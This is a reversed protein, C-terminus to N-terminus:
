TALMEAIFLTTFESVGSVLEIVLAQQNALLLQITPSVGATQGAVRAVATPAGHQVALRLGAWAALGEQAGWYDAAGDHGLARVEASLQHLAAVQAGQGAVVARAFAELFYYNLTLAALIFDLRGAPFCDETGFLTLFHQGTPMDTSHLAMFSFTWKTPVRVSTHFYAILLPDHALMHAQLLAM